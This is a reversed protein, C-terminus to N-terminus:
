GVSTMLQTGIVTNEKVYTMTLMLKKSPMHEKEQTKTLPFRRHGEIILELTTQKKGLDTKCLCLSTEQRCHGTAESGQPEM